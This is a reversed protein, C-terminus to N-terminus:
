SSLMQNFCYADVRTKIHYETGETWGFSWQLFLLLLTFYFSFWWWKWGIKMKKQKERKWSQNDSYFCFFISGIQYPLQTFKFQLGFNTWWYILYSLLHFLLWIQIRLIKRTKKVQLVIWKAKYYDKVKLSLSKVSDNHKKLNDFM